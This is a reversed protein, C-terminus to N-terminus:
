HTKSLKAEDIRGLLRVLRETKVSSLMISGISPTCLEPHYFSLEEAFIAYYNLM